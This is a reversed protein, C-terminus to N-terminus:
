QGTNINIKSGDSTVVITGEKDTRYITAGSNELNKVVEKHPGENDCSIIAYESSIAKIFEPTSASNFGHHGVKLLNAKLDYGKDLIEKESEKEADGTFLFSTSGYSM